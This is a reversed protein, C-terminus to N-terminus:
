LEFVEDDGETGPEVPALLLEARRDIRGQALLYLLGAVLVAVPVVVRRTLEPSAFLSSVGGPEPAALQGGPTAPGVDTADDGDGDDGRDDRDAGPAPAAPSTFGPFPSAPGAALVSGTVAPAPVPLIPTGAAALTRDPGPRATDVVVDTDLEPGPAPADVEDAEDADEAGRGQDPAGQGPAGHAPRDGAAPPRAARDAARPRSGADAGGGGSTGTSSATPTPESAHPSSGHGAEAHAPPRHEPAPSHAHPPPAAEDRDAHAPPREYADSAALATAPTGLLLGGALMATALGTRRPAQRTM